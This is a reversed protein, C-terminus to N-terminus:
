QGNRFPNCSSREGKVGSPPNRPKSPSPPLGTRLSCHRSKCGIPPLTRPNTYRSVVCPNTYQLHSHTRAHTHICKHPHTHADRATNPQTVTYIHAPTHPKTCRCTNLSVGKLFICTHFHGAAAYNLRMLVYRGRFEIVAIHKSALFDTFYATSVM